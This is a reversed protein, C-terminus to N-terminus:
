QRPKGYIADGVRRMWHLEEANMPGLKLVALAQEVHEATAPGTLCVDVAPHSLVFRYCDTATPVREGKPINSPKLLQGWSTATFAVIGPPNDLPLLPFVDRESGTHVANYRVHVIDIGQRGSFTEVMTRKHTSIAVHRMLGREKLARCADLISDPVVRNWLGLLLVDCYDMRLARLGREVSWNVGSALPLYCQLVLIMRNRRPALNRIAEGFQRTRMSGWYLYNMGHDFACEVAAAPVGYSAAIGLAGASLGSRGLVAPPFSAM